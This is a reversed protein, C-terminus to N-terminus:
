YELLKFFGMKIYFYHKQSFSVFTKAPTGQFKFGSGQFEQFKFRQMAARFSSVREGRGWSQKAFSYIEESSIYIQACIYSNKRLGM